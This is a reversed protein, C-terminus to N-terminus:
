GYIYEGQDYGYPVRDPEDQEKYSHYAKYAALVSCTFSLWAVAKSVAGTVGQTALNRVASATGVGPIWWISLGILAFFEFQHSFFGYRSVIGKACLMNLVLVVAVIVFSVVGTVITWACLGGCIDLERATNSTTGFTVVSFLLVWAELLLKESYPSLQGLKSRRVFIEERQVKDM